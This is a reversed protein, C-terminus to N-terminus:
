RSRLKELQEEQKDAQIKERVAHLMIHHILTKGVERETGFVSSKAVSLILGTWGFPDEGGGEFAKGYRENLWGMGMRTYVICADKIADPVDALEVARREMVDANFAIRPFGNFDDAEREQHTRYPRCLCAVLKNTWELQEETVQCSTAKRLYHDAWRWEDICMDSMDKAPLHWTKGRYEFHPIRAILPKLKGDQDKLTVDDFIFETCAKAASLIAIPDARKLLKLIAKKSIKKQQPQILSCFLQFRVQDRPGLLSLRWAKQYGEPPIEAWSAPHSCPFLGLKISHM